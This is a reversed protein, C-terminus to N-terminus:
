FIELTSMCYHLPQEQQSVSAKGRLRHKHAPTINCCSINKIALKACLIQSKVPTQNNKHQFGTCTGPFHTLVGSQPYFLHVQDPDDEGVVSLPLLHKRILFRGNM